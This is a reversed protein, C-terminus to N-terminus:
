RLRILGLILSFCVLSLPSISETIQAVEIQPTEFFSEPFELYGLGQIVTNDPHTPVGKWCVCQTKDITFFETLPESIPQLLKM